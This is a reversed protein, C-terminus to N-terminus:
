QGDDKDRYAPAGYFSTGICRRMILCGPKEQQRQNEDKRTNGPREPHANTTRQEGPHM